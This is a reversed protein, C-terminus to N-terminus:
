PERHTARGIEVFLRAQMSPSVTHGVDPYARLAASWGRDVLLAVARETPAFLVRRDAEGHLAVIPPANTPADVILESPLFGGLPFAAGISAPHQTALAFSLMGGQSFGTVIPKGRTPYRAVLVELMAAVRGAAAAIGEHMRTRDGLDFWSYGGGYPTLGFPTVVRAAVPLADLIGFREPRDGLGHMAVVLPLRADAAAGATTRVLYRVGAAEETTGRATASLADSPVSAPRPPREPRSPSTPRPPADDCAGVVLVLLAPLLRSVVVGGRM